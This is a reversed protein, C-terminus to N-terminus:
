KEAVSQENTGTSPVSSRAIGAKVSKRARAESKRVSTKDSDSRAKSKSPGHSQCACSEAILADRCDDARALSSVLVTCLPLSIVAARLGRKMVDLM